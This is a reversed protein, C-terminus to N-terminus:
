RKPVADTKDEEKATTASSSSSGPGTGRPIATTANGTGPGTGGPISTTGTGGPRATSEERASYGHEKETPQTRETATSKEVTPEISTKDLRYSGQWEAYDHSSVGNRESGAYESRGSVVTVKLVGREGAKLLGAHVAATAVDSDDTYVGTGWVPGETSGVVDVYLVTARQGRYQSLDPVSSMVKPRLGFANPTAPRSEIGYSHLRTSSPNRLNLTAGTREIKYSGEWPGYPSSTVGNKSEGSYSDQGPLITLRVIGREGARVLGAHVAATALASDDTYIGSGWVMGNVSGTVDFHFTQGVKDRYEVLNGPDAKVSMTRMAGIMGTADDEARAVHYSGGWSGYAQTTIGNHSSGVYSEMGPLIDVRVRGRENARLAGAHVAAAALPSDDTYIRTAWVSSGDVRGTVDFIFSQGVRDRYQRLDGPDPLAGGQARTSRVGIDDELQRIRAALVATERAQGNAQCRQRIAELSRIAELTAAAKQQQLQEIVKQAEPPLAANSLSRSMYLLARDTTERADSRPAPPAPQAKIEDLVLTATTKNGETKQQSWAPLASLALVAITLLGTRPLRLPVNGNMIMALRRELFKRGGTNVGVAPMPNRKTGARHMSECVNLLGEAYARRGGPLTDVVWADCALEANERLQHRVYWFLPNWWWLVGAALELWGIWHDRRRIHALEHAILGRVGTTGARDAVPLEAPWLLVPRVLSLIAPSGLGPLVCVRLPAVGMRRAMEGVHKLLTADPPLATQLRRLMRTTRVAELLAFLFAGALWVIGIVPLTWASL